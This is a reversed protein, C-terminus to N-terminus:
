WDEWRLIRHERHATTREQNMFVLWEHSSGSGVMEGSRVMEGSPYHHHSRDVGVLSCLIQLYKDKILSETSVFSCKVGGIGGIDRHKTSGGSGETEEQAM